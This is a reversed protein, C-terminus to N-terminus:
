YVDALDSAFDCTYNGSYLWIVAGVCFCCFNLLFFCTPSTCDCTSWKCPVLLFVSRQTIHIVTCVKISDDFFFLRWLFVRQWRDERGRKKCLVSAEEQVWLQSTEYCFWFGKIFFRPNQFVQFVSFFSFPDESRSNTSTPATNFHGGHSFRFAFISSPYESSTKFLRTM